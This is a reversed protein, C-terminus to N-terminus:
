SRKKASLLDEDIAQLMAEAGEVSAKSLGQWWRFVRSSLAGTGSMVCRIGGDEAPPFLELTVEESGPIYPYGAGVDVTRMSFIWPGDKLRESQVCERMCFFSGARPGVGAKHRLILAFGPKLEGLSAAKMKASLSGPEKQEHDGNKAMEAAASSDWHVMRVDATQLVPHRETSWSSPDAFQAWYAARDVDGRMTRETSWEVLAPGSYKFVVTDLIYVAMAAFVVVCWWFLFFKFLMPYAEMFKGKKGYAADAQVLTTLFVVAFAFM